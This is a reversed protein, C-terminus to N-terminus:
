SSATAPVGSILVDAHKTWGLTTYLRQGDASAILLGTTAGLERAAIALESMVVSGLGRRRHAPETAIKDAIADTGNVGINGSAALEGTASDVIRVTAVGGNVETEAKYGAALEPAPHAALDIGMLWEPRDFIELGSAEIAAAARAPENTTVTLWTVETASLVQAALRPVSEPDEDARTSFVEVVRGNQDCRVSVSDPGHVGAPLDRAVGWGEQWRRVLDGLIMM